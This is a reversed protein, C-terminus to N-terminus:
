RRDIQFARDRAFSYERRCSSVAFMLTSLIQCKSGEFDAISTSIRPGRRPSLRKTKVVLGLCERTCDDVVALIRFRRGDTLQDSVFDLSWRQNAALSTEVPRLRVTLREERCIRQVRKRNV